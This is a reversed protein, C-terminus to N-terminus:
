RTATNGRRHDLDCQVRHRHSREGIRGRHDHREGRRLRLCGRAWDPASCRERKGVTGVCVSGAVRRVSTGRGACVEHM